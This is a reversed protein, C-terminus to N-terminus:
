AAPALDYSRAKDAMDVIAQLYVLSAEDNERVVSIEPHYQLGLVFTKDPREDAEIMEIGSTEATGTVLLRTGEISKV